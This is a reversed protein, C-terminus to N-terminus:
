EEAIKLNNIMGSFGEPIEVFYAEIKGPNDALEMIKQKDDESLTTEVMITNTTTQRVFRNGIHGIIGSIVEPMHDFSNETKCALIIQIFM